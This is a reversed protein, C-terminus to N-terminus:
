DTVGGRIPQTLREVLEQTVGDGRTAPRDDLTEAVPDHGDEPARRTRDFTGNRQLAGDVRFSPRDARGPEVHAYSERDAVYMDVAVVDVAQGDDFCCPQATGSSTILDEAAVRNPRHCSTTGARADHGNTIEVEFPERLRQRCELDEPFHSTGGSWQGRRQKAAVLKREDASGLLSRSEEGRPVVRRGTGPPRAEQRALRPDALGPQHGLDDLFKVIPGCEHQESPAVLAQTDRVLRESLREAVVDFVDLRKREPAEPAIKAAEHGLKRLADITQAAGELGVDIRFTV